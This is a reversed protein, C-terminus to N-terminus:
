LLGGALESCHLASAVQAIVPPPLRSDTGLAQGATPDVETFVASLARRQSAVIARLMAIEARASERESPPASLRAPVPPLDAAFQKSLHLHM